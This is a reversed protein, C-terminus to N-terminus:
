VVTWVSGDPITVTINNQVTVPGATMANKGSSLTYNFSVLQDNVYFVRDTGGGTAGGIKANPDIKEETVANNALHISSISSTKVSADLIRTDKSFNLDITASDVPRPYLNQLRVRVPEVGTHVVLSDTPALSSSESPVPDTLNIINWTSFDSVKVLNNLTVKKTVNQDVIPLFGNTSPQTVQDLNSIRREAM